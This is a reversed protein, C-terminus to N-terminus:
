INKIAISNDDGLMAKIKEQYNKVLWVQWDDRESFIEWLEDETSHNKYQKAALYETFLLGSIRDEESWHNVYDIWKAQDESELPIVPYKKEAKISFKACAKEINEYESDIVYWFSREVKLTGDIESPCINENM